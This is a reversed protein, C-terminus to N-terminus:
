RVNRMRLCGLGCKRTLGDGMRGNGEGEDPEHNMQSRRRSNTVQHTSALSVLPNGIGEWDMTRKEMGITLADIKIGIKTVM